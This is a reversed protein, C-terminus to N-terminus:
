ISLRGNKLGLRSIDLPQMYEFSHNDFLDFVPWHSVQSTVESMMKFMERSIYKNAYPTTNMLITWTIGNNQRVVITSSGVFSGTRYWNNGRDTYAWGMAWIDSPTNQTMLDITQKSLIDPRNDFGDIASVFKLLSAATCIWGGAPGIAEINNDSTPEVITRTTNVKKGKKTKAQTYYRVENQYLGKRKSKGIMMDNIGLPQLIQSTVYEEYDSGTKKEIILGLLAYGFNSYCHLSGPSAKLPKQLMYRTITRIGAPAGVKMARAISYSRFLPDYREKFYWGATHTLLHRVTINKIRKDKIKKFDSDNLIGNDGFVKDDLSLKNEEILKFIAVATILKSISAIRFLHNPNVEELSEMSAYGFGKAYLLKGDKSVAVSAGAVRHAKLFLMVKDDIMMMESSSSMDNSLRPLIPGPSRYANSLGTGTSFTLVEALLISIVFLLKQICNSVM